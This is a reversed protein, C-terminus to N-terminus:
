ETLSGYGFVENPVIRAETLTETVPGIGWDLAAVPAHPPLTKMKDVLRYIADSHTGLGGTERLAHHYNWTSLADLSFVVMVLVAIMVQISEVGPKLGTFVGMPRFRKHVAARIVDALALAGVAGLMVMFPLILAFHTYWLATSTFSSQAVMLVVILVIFLRVGRKERMLVAAALCAGASLYLWGRALPNPYQGGLEWMHGSEFVLPTQRVRETFNERVNRNDVGYYSQDFNGFINDLTGGSKLNYTILPSLGLLGCFIATLITYLPTPVDPRLSFKKIWRPLNLFFWAIFVAGMFWIFLLKGWLGVGMLFAALWLNWSKGGRWWRVMLWLGALALTQTYSTVYVGQRTWFIQTPHVALLLVTLAAARKGALSWAAGFAMVLTLIGTIISMTRLSEVSVGGISFPIWALYVNLAGIYDQVMLPWSRGAVTLGTERFLVPPLGNKLQMGMLAAEQAEDHHMGPLELQYFALGSYVVVAILLPLYFRTNM